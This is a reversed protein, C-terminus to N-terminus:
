LIFNLTVTQWKAALKDLLFKNWPTGDLQKDIIKAMTMSVGGVGEPQLAGPIKMLRQVEKPNDWDIQRNLKKKQRLERKREIDKFEDILEEPDDGNELQKEVDM